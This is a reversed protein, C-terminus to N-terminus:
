AKAILNSYVVQPESDLLDKFLEFNKATHEGKIHFDLTAQDPFTEINFFCTPDEISQRMEWLTGPEAERVRAAAIKAAERAQDVKDPKIKLIGVIYKEM